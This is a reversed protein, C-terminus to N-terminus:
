STQERRRSAFGFVVGVIGVVLGAIGLVRALVDPQSTGATAKSTLSTSM